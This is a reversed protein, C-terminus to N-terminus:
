PSRAPADTGGTVHALLRAADGTSMAVHRLTTATPREHKEKGKTIGTDMLTEVDAGDIATLVEDPTTDLTAAWQQVTGVVIGHARTLTDAREHPQIGQTRAREEKM